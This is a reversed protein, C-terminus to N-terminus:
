LYCAHLYAARDVSEDVGRQADFTREITVKEGNTLTELIVVPNIHDDGDNLTLSAPKGIHYWFILTLSQASRQLTALILRFVPLEQFLPPL